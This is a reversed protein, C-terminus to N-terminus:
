QPQLWSVAEATSPCEPKARWSAALKISCCQGCICTVYAINFKMYTVSALWM